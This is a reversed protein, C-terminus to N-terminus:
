DLEALPSSILPYDKASAGDFHWWETRIGKFGSREMVGRLLERNEKQWQPLNPYNAWARKSFDDFKTPMELEDGQADVLTVDVSIGRNHRSGKKPNAVYRADPMIKWMKKQVSLPRYCDLCKLGLGRKELYKQALVLKMAVEKQLYCENKGYLPKGLFNDPKAYKMDVIIDKNLDKINVLAASAFPHNLPKDIVDFTLFFDNIMAVAQQIRSQKMLRDCVSLEYFLNDPYKRDTQSVLSHANHSRLLSVNECKPTLTALFKPDKQILDVATQTKQLPGESGYYVSSGGEVENGIVLTLASKEIWGSLRKILEVEPSGKPFHAPNFTSLINYSASRGDALSPLAHVRLIVLREGKLSVKSFSKVATNTWDGGTFLGGALLASTGPNEGLRINAVISFRGGIMETIRYKGNQELFAKLLAAIKEANQKNRKELEQLSARYENLKAPDLIANPIDTKALYSATEKHNSLVKEKQELESYWKHLQKMEKENSTKQRYNEILSKLNDIRRQLM